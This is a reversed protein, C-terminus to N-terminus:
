EPKSEPKPEPPKLHETTYGTPEGPGSSGKPKVVIDGHDNKYM